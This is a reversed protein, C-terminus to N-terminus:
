EYWQAKDANGTYMPAGGVKKMSMDKGFIDVAITGIPQFPLVFYLDQTPTIEIKRHKGRQLTLYSMTGLIEKHFLIEIDVEQDITGCSDYYGKGVIEQVFNDVGTRMLKKADQSIQHPTIFTIGRPACFNRVRRFLDRVDVGSYGQNCGKKSIMNLYDFFIAHIEYGQSEYKMILDFLTSYTFESPNVRYFEVEYGTGQLKEKVYKSAEAENIDKVSVYEGTEKERINKYLTSIDIQVENESSIRLILPKKTPDRMYPTNFMCIHELLLQTMGTKFNFPLAGLLVFEGRRFGHASGLMRNFAQIGTRLAGVDSLEDKAQRLSAAVATEDSLKVHKLISPDVEDGMIGSYPELEVQFSRLFDRWDISEPEFNVKRAAANLKEQITTRRLHEKLFGKYELILGKIEDNNSHERAITDAIADYTGNDTGTNIRIKQLLISRDYKHNPQNDSMWRITQMLSVTVDRSSDGEILMDPVKITDLIKKILDASNTTNDPLLSEKFLLTIANVLLIKADM